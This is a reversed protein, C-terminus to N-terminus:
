GIDRLAHGSDLAELAEEEYETVIRKLEDNVPDVVGVAKRLIDSYRSTVHPVSKIELLINDSDPLKPVSSASLTGLFDRFNM